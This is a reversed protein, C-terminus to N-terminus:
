KIQDILEQYKKDREEKSKYVRRIEDGKEREIVIGHMGEFDDPIPYLDPDGLEFYKHVGIADIVVGDDYKLIM